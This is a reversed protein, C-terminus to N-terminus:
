FTVQINFGYRRASPNVYLEGFKGSLDFGETTSEPDIFTNETPTWVFLNNGVLSFRVSSLKAKAVIKQPLDYSVSLNRLKAFDRKMLMGRDGDFGNALNYQGNAVYDSSIPITNEEYTINGENDEVAIVSGPIIYTHRDNYMTAIGNGTFGM